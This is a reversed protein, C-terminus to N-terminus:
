LETKLNEEGPESGAKTTESDSEKKKPLIVSNTEVFKILSEMDRNGDLLIPKNKKGPVAYYITPFGTFSYGSPAENSTGDM